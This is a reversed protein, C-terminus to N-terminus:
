FRERSLNNVLTIWRDTLAAEWAENVAPFGELGTIEARYVMLNDGLRRPSIVTNYGKLRALQAVQDAQLPVRFSGLILHYSGDPQQRVLTERTLPPLWLKQGAVVRNLNEIHTNFEKILDLGLIRNTGYTSAAIEAITSGAPIAMPDQKWTVGESQAAPSHPGNLRTEESPLNIPKGVLRAQESIQPGETRDTLTSLAPASPSGATGTSTETIM